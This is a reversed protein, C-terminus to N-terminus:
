TQVSLNVTTQHEEFIIWMQSPSDRLKAQETEGELLPSDFVEVPDQVFDGGKGPTGGGGPPPHGIIPANPSLRFDAM